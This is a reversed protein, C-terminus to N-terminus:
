RLSLAAFENFVPKIGLAMYEALLHDVIKNQM